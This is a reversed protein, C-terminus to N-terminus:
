NKVGRVATKDVETYQWKSMEAEVFPKLKDGAQFMKSLNAKQNAKVVNLDNSGANLKELWQYIKTLEDFNSKEIESDFLYSIGKSGVILPINMKKILSLGEADVIDAVESQVIYKYSELEKEKPLLQLSYEPSIKLSEYNIAVIPKNNLAKRFPTEALQVAVASNEGIIAEYLSYKKTQKNFMIVNAQKNKRSFEKALLLSDFLTKTREDGKVVIGKPVTKVLDAPYVASSMSFDARYVNGIINSKSKLEAAKEFNTKSNDVLGRIYYAKYNNPNIKLAMEADALAKARNEDIASSISKASSDYFKGNFTYLLGRETYLSDFTPNKAIEATLRDIEPNQSKSTQTPLPSNDKALIGELKALNDIAAKNNPNIELAKSFDAKAQSYNKLEAYAVGRNIYADALTSNLRIAESYDSIAETNKRLNYFAVGRNLYCTFATNDLRLCESFSTVAQSYQKQKNQKNGSEFWEKATRPPQAVVNSFQVALLIATAIIIKILKM